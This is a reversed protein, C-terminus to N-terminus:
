TFNGYPFGRQNEPWHLVHISSYMRPWIGMIRRTSQPVTFRYRNAPFYSRAYGAAGVSSAVAGSEGGHNVPVVAAKLFAIPVTDQAMQWFCMSCSRIRKGRSTAFCARDPSVVWAQSRAQPWKKVHGDPYRLADQTSDRAARGSSRRFTEGFLEAGRRRGSAIVCRRFGIRHM